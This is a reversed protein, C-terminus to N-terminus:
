YETINYIERDYQLEGEAEGAREEESWGGVNCCMVVRRMGGGGGEVGAEGGRRVGQEAGGGQVALQKALGVQRPVSAWGQRRYRGTTTPLSAEHGAGAAGPPAAVAGLHRHFHCPRAQGLGSPLVDPLQGQTAARAQGEGAAMATCKEVGKGRGGAVM